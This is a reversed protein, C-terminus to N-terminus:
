RKPNPGKRIVRKLTTVETKQSKNQHILIPDRTQCAPKGQDRATASIERLKTLSQRENFSTSQKQAKHFSASM